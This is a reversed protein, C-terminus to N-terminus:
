VLIRTLTGQKIYENIIDLNYSSNNIDTVLWASEDVDEGPKLSLIVDATAYNVFPNEINFMQISIVSSTINKLRSM